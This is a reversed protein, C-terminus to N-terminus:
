KPLFDTLKPSNFERLFNEIRNEALIVYDKNIEYGVYKRNSKIAAIATQGTGIFPDLVTDKTYTYLQICRYPLEVPFPAPHGIRKASETPFSWISKTYELFEDRSISNERDKVKPRKYTDKSFILIYEHVDRLSPNSAAKWSGWATSSGASASKDWIIEGRMLFNLKTMERIIYAHLPIYPKRGLNATNICVRGGPVLVRKVEKWITNLLNLYEKLTFNRDYDKGVNYPPSTIVLHVSESPLEDMTESSKCFIKNIINEPITNENYEIKKEKPLKEYLKSDYFATSDHSERGSSGFTSTKTRKRAKKEQNDM